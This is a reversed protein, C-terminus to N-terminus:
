LSGMREAIDMHEPVQNVTVRWFLLSIEGTGIWVKERGRGLYLLLPYGEGSTEHSWGETKGLSENRNKWGM